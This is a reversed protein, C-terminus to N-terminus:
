LGAPPVKPKFICVYIYIYIFYMNINCIIYISLIYIFMCIFYIYLYTYFYNLSFFCHQEKNEGSNTKPLATLMAYIEMLTRDKSFAVSEHFTHKIVDKM